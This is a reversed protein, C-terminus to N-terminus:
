MEAKLLSDYAEAWIRGSKRLSRLIDLFAELLGKTIHKLGHKKCFSKVLPQIKSLNHRPMRPFLHHEIQYNLHGTFWTNFWTGEINCTADVQMTVWDKNQDDGIAMPVHNSQAVWVFWTSECIRLVFHYVLAKWFSGFAYTTIPFFQAYFLLSAIRDGMPANFFNKHSQYWFFLPFLLPPLTFSFYWHQWNYPMQHHKPDNAVQKPMLEGVVFLFDLRTDPDKKIINPKAHHQYHNHNWWNAMSGKLFPMTMYHLAHNVTVSKSASLHGFDHQLWGAQVHAITMVTMSSLLSWPTWGYKLIIAFGGYDLLIIHLYWLFFFLQSPKMLGMEEIKTRLDRYDQIIEPIKRLSHDLEGVKRGLLFKRSKQTDPHFVEFPESIDQGAYHLLLQSGGPHKKVWSTVDYIIYDLVVWRSQLNDRGHTEIEEWNYFAVSEETM